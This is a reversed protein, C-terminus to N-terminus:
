RFIVLDNLALLWQDCYVAYRLLLFAPNGTQADSPVVVVRVNWKTQARNVSGSTAVHCLCSVRIVTHVLCVECSTTATLPQSPSPRSSPTQAPTLIMLRITATFQRSRQETAKAKSFQLAKWLKLTRRKGTGRKGTRGKGIGRKWRGRLGMRKYENRKKQTWVGHVFKYYISLHQMAPSMPPYRPRSIPPLAKVIM